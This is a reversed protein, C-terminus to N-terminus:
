HISHMSLWRPSQFRAGWFRHLFSPTAGHAQLGLEPFYFEAPAQSSEPGVLRAQGTLKLTMSRVQRRLYPVYHHLFIGLM